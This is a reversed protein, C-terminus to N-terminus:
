TSTSDENHIERIKGLTEKLLFTLEWLKKSKAEDQEWCAFNMALLRADSVKKAVEEFSM